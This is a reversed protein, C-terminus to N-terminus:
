TRRRREILFWALAVLFAALFGIILYHSVGAVERWSAGVYEGVCTLFANGVLCGATTYAVFKQLPMKVAGAPFSVLARSGPILRSLFVMLADYKNFWREATEMRAKSFLVHTKQRALLDMRKMGVYYEVMSGTIGALTSVLITLWLNLQDLSVLYGSFPLIVESPIPLSSSELLMLFFIGAYDWSSVTATVSETLMVIANLLLAFPTGSFGGREIMTDELTDLLVLVIVVVVVAM